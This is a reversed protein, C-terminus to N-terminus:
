LLGQRRLAQYLGGTVSDFSKMLKIFNKSKKITFIFLTNEKTISVAIKGDLGPIQISICPM